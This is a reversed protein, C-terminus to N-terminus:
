NAREEPENGSAYHTVEIGVEAAVVLKLFEPSFICTQNFQESELSVGFDLYADSVHPFAAAKAIESHNAQLFLLADSVQHAVDEFEAKSVLFYAGSRRHVRDGTGKPEGKRWVLYPQIQLSGVMADVDLSEGM